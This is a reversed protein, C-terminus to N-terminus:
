KSNGIITAKTGRDNLLRRLKEIARLKIRSISGQCINFANGLDKQKLKEKGFLGFTYELILREIDTLSKMAEYLEKISEQKEVEEYVDVDSSVVDELYINDHVPTSLSITEELILRNSSHEKRITRLIENAICRTLYTSPKINKNKDYNKAGRVLGIMGVDYYKDISTRNFMGYRKLVVYILRTNNVILDEVEKEM